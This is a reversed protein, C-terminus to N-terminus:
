HLLESRRRGHQSFCSWLRELWVIRKNGERPLVFHIESSIACSIPHQSKCSRCRPTMRARMTLMRHKELWVPCYKQLVVFTLVATRPSAVVDLSCSPMYKSCFHAAYRKDTGELFRKTERQVASVYTPGGCEESVQCVTRRHEEALAKGGAAGENRRYKSSKGESHSVASM